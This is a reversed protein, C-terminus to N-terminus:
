KDPQSSSQTFLRIYRYVTAPSTGVEAAINEYSMGRARLMLMMTKQENTVRAKRGAGRNRLRENEIELEKIKAKLEDIENM